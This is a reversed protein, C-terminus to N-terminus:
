PRKGRDALLPADCSVCSLRASARSWASIRCISCVFKTRTAKMTPPEPGTPVIPAVARSASAQRWWIANGRSLWERCALDFPGGAIIYHTVRHGTRKGGIGGTDSPMLGVAEMRDAWIRDHYGGTGKGGKRNLSGFDYRWQHCMEHVFTSYSDADSRAGFLAPNMSIEHAVLGDGDAFIGACFFGRASRKRKLTILSNSLAGDFLADNFFNFAGQWHGYAEATPMVPRSNPQAAFEDATTESNVPEVPLPFNAPVSM